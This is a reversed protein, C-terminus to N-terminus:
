LDWVCELVRVRANEVSACTASQQGVMAGLMLIYGFVSAPVAMSSSESASPYVQCSDVITGASQLAALGVWRLYQIPVPISYRLYWSDLVVAQTSLPHLRIQISTKLAIPEKWCGLSNPALLLGIPIPATAWGLLLGWYPSTSCIKTTHEHRNWFISVRTAFSVLQSSYWDPGTTTGTCVRTVEPAPLWAMQYKCPKIWCDACESISTFVM